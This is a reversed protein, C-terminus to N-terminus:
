KKKLDDIQESKKACECKGGNSLCPCPTRHGDGHILVGSGNCECAPVDPTNDDPKSMKLLKENIVFAVFGENKPRDFSPAATKKNFDFINNPVLTVAFLLILIISSPKM